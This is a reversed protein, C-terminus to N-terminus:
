PILTPWSRLLCVSSISWGSEGGRLNNASRPFTALGTVLNISFSALGKCVCVPRASPRVCVRSSPLREVVWATPSSPLAVCCLFSVSLSCVCVAPTRLPRSVWLPKHTHTTPRPPTQHVCSNQQSQTVIGSHIYFILVVSLAETWTMLLDSIFPPIKSKETMMYHALLSSISTSSNNNTTWETWM